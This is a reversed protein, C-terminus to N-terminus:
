DDAVFKATQGRLREDEIIHESIFIRATESTSRLTDTLKFPADTDGFRLIWGREPSCGVRLSDNHLSTDSIRTEVQPGDSSFAIRRKREM